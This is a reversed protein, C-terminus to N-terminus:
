KYYGYCSEECVTMYLFLDDSRHRDHVLSIPESMNVLLNKDTLVVYIAKNENIGEIHRRLEYIFRAVTVNDPSLFKNRKMKLSSGKKPYVIVPIRDPYKQLISEALRYRHEYTSSLKFDSM